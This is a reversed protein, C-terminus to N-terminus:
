QWVSPLAFWVGGVDPDTNDNKWENIIADVVEESKTGYKITKSWGSSTSRDGVIPSAGGRILEQIFGRVFDELDPGDLGFGQRGAKVIQWLGVPDSKASELSRSIWDASTLGTKLHIYIM